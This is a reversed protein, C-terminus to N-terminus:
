DRQPPHGSYRIGGAYNRVQKLLQSKQAELEPQERQITLGLLQSELGSRTVTFNTAAILSRADPPLYPEPNRTVLYLRAPPTPVLPSPEPLAPEHRDSRGPTSVWLQRLTFVAAPCAHCRMEGRVTVDYGIQWSYM